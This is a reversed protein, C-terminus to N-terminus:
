FASPQGVGFSERQPCVATCVAILTAPRRVHGQAHVGTALASERSAPVVPPACPPAFPPAVPPACPPAVSLEPAAKAGCYNHWVIKM